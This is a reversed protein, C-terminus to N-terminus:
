SVVCCCCLNVVLVHVCLQGVSWVCSTEVESRIRVVLIVLKLILVLSPPIFAGLDHASILWVCM